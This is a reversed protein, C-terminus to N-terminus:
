GGGGKGAKRQRRADLKDFESPQSVGTAFPTSLSCFSFISWVQFFLLPEEATQTLEGRAFELDKRRFVHSFLERFTLAIILNITM